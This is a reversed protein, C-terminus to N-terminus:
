LLVGVDGEKWVGEELGLERLLELLGLEGPGVEEVLGVDEVVVGGAPAESVCGL